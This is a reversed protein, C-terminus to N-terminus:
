TRDDAQQFIASGDTPVMPKDWLPRKESAVKQLTREYIGRLLGYNVAGSYRREYEIRAAARMAEMEASHEMAWRVKESLEVANGPSFLLGTRGEDIIERLAGIRTAVVPVGCAFAEVVALGFAEQWQSPFVLLSARKMLQLLNERSQFGVMKINSVKAQELHSRIPIGEPGEGVILLPLASIHKWAETLVNLGKERALRGAFIAYSAGRNEQYGPDPDIFNPKVAIKSPPLGGKVLKERVCESPAVYTDVKDIWTNWWWHASVMAAVVSSQIRSAHYCGRMAAPWAVLRGICSECVKGDRFLDASPCIMRYNHITQVVPVGLEQCAYYASPSITNFVNHFHAVDPRERVVIEQIAKASEVSWISNRVLKLKQGIRGSVESNHCHFEIVQDGHSKLLDKEQAFVVDEGGRQLYSNHVILIKM